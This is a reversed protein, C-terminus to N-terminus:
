YQKCDWRVVINKNQELNRRTNWRLDDWKLDSSMYMVLFIQLFNNDKLTLVKIAGSLAWQLNHEYDVTYFM